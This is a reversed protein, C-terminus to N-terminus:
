DETQQGQFTIFILLVRLTSLFNMLIKGKAATCARSLECSEGWPSGSKVDCLQGAPDLQVEVYFMDSTIYCETGSASLHSGLGNQRAISELRDTMAPLSTVKLAKQLTELCSVM